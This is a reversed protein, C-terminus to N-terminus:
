FTMGDANQRFLWQLSAHATRIICNSEYIYPRFWQVAQVVGLAERKTTAYIVETKTLVRSEFAIPYDIGCIVQSLVAGLATDSAGTDTIFPLEFSPFALIPSELLRKKLTLFPKDHGETWTFKLGKSTLLYLPRAVEAFNQVFKLYYNCFASFSRVGTVDTPPEWERVAALKKSDPQIGEKNIVHGLYHVETRLM